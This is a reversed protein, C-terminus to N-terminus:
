AADSIAASFLWWSHDEFSCDEVSIVKFKTGYIVKMLKDPGYSGPKENRIAAIQVFHM